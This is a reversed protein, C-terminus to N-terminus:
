RSPGGKKPPAGDPRYVEFSPAHSIGTGRGRVPPLRTRAGGPRLDYWMSVGVSAIVGGLVAIGVGVWDTGYDSPGHLWATSPTYIGILFVASGLLGLVLWVDRGVIPRPGPSDPEM